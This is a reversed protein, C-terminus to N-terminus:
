NLRGFIPNGQQRVAMSVARGVVDALQRDTALPQGAYNVNVVVDGGGGMSSGGTLSESGGGGSSVPGGSGSSGGGGGGGLLESGAFFAASAAAAGGAAAFAAGAAAPNFISYFLGEATYGLAKAAWNVGEAQMQAGIAAMIGEGALAAAIGIQAYSEAGEGVAQAQAALAAREADVEQKRLRIREDVGEAVLRYREQELAEQRALAAKEGLPDDGIGLADALPTANAFQARAFVDLIDVAATKAKHLAAITREVQEAEQEGTNFTEDIQERAEAMLAKLEAQAGAVDFQRDLLTQRIAELRKRAAEAADINAATGMNQAITQRRQLEAEAAIAQRQLDAASSGFASEATEAAIARQLRGIRDLVAPSAFIAYEGLAERAAKIRETLSDWSDAATEVAEATEEMSAAISAGIGLLATLGASVAGVPGPIAALAGTISGLGSLLQTTSGSAAQLASSLAFAASGAASMQEKGAVLKDKLGGLSGGAKSSADSAADMGKAIGKGADAGAQEVKALDREAQAAGTTQTQIELRRTIKDAM